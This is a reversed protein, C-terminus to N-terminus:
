ISEVFRVVSLVLVRHLLVGNRGIGAVGLSVRELSADVLQSFLEVLRASLALSRQFLRSFFRHSLLLRRLRRQFLADLRERFLHLVRSLALLSVREVRCQNFLLLLSIFIDGHTLELLTDILERRLDM